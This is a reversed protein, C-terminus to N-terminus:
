PKLAQAAEAVNVIGDGAVANITAIVTPHTSGTVFANKYASGLQANHANSIIGNFGGADSYWYNQYLMNHDAMWKSMAEIYPASSGNEVGWESMATGKGHAAAFDQQWQLGYPQAVKWKFAEIPNPNDYATNYYTDMGIVDVFKDGPYAKAPNIQSAGQNVDWVFKFDNSVSRFVNVVEQFAKVFAQEQGAAAWPMWPANFEWGLRVYISGDASPKSEALAIAAKLFYSDYAGSAVQKLSTGWVTLPVSWVSSLGTAKALEVAWPVSSAFESWSDNNLYDLTNDPAGGAWSQYAKLSGKSTGVYVGNQTM